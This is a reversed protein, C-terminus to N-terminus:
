VMRNSTKENEDGIRKECKPGVFKFVKKFRPFLITRPTYDGTWIPVTKYIGCIADEKGCEQCKGYKKM